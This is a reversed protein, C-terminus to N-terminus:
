KWFAIRTFFNWQFRRDAIAICHLKKLTHLTLRSVVPWIRLHHPFVEDHTECGLVKSDGKELLYEKIARSFTSFFSCIFTEIMFM